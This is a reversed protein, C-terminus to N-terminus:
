IFVIEANGVGMTRWAIELADLIDLHESEPYDQMHRWLLNDGKFLIQGTNIFPEMSEIREEKKRKQHIGKFPIYRGEEKSKQEIVQLFFQQFAVAEIGFREFKETFNFITRMTEDPKLPAGISEVEYVQGTKESRGLIVIAVLSGKKAEGLALDLGGYFKLDKPLYEYRSPKFYTFEGPAPFEVMYYRKWDKSTTMTQKEDLEQQTFRKEKLAQELSIRVKHFLPDHFADEFVSGEVCNGSMVLKGWGRNQEPMRVVKSFQEKHKILGAEELVIIDGGEGVVGEGEKSINRSDISTIYIWGGSAWKLTDKSVSIKLKDIDSVGQINILGAYLDKHDGLHQVIYDMIKEAKDASGAVIPIKLHHFVALYILALAITESKGYRTPASTWVWQLSPKIIAMFIEAQGETLEYPEGKGNKFYKLALTKMGKIKKLHIIKKQNM